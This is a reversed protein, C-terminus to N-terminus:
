QLKISFRIINNVILRIAYIGYNIFLVPQQIAETIKTLLFSPRFYYQLLLRRRFALVQKVSMHRMVPPPNRFYDRGAISEESLGITQYMETGPYPIPIHFEIFDSNLDFILAKTKELDDPTEWFFGGMFFGYIKLGAARASAAARYSDEITTGKRLRKMTEPSGSEFGFAILWCGASKMLRFLDADAPRTKSNAVWRIKGNLPSNLILQCFAEVWRRDMTFTDAKFFFDYIGFTNVCEDIEALVNEPSRTRLKRGSIVPTLCFICNSPCGRSVTITAQPKGTDPRVYLANNMLSREPFYLLDPEGELDNFGTNVWTGNDRYLIGPIAAPSRDSFHAHILRAATFDSEGGILYDVSRLDLTDLLVKGANFFLAGKLIVTCPGYKALIRDVMEIDERITGTTISIFILDPKFSIVESTFDAESLSETMYDRILVQYPYDKLGAAIYGLDNCAHLNTASSDAVNGQCREEGRQFSKGPPYVLMINKHEIPQTM